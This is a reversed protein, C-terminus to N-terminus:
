SAVVGDVRNTSVLLNAGVALSAGPCSADPLCGLARMLSYPHPYVPM